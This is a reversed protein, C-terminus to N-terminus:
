SSLIQPFIWSMIMRFVVAFVLIYVFWLRKKTQSDINKSKYGAYLSWLLIGLLPIGCLTTIWKNQTTFVVLMLVLIAITTLLSILPTSLGKQVIIPKISNLKQEIEIYSEIQAPILITDKTNHAKIVFGRGKTKQITDIERQYFQLTPTNLQYRSITTNGILFVYSKLLKEQRKIGRYISFGMIIAVVPIIYPLVNIDDPEHTTNFHAITFGIAMGLVVVPVTILLTKNRLAKFGGESIRYEKSEM